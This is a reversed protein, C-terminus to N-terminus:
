SPDETRLWPTGGITRDLRTAGTGPHMVEYYFDRIDLIAQFREAPTKSQWYRVVDRHNQESVKGTGGEEYGPRM